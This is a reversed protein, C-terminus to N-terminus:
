PPAVRRLEDRGVWDLPCVVIQPLAILPEIRDDDSRKDVEYGCLDFTRQCHACKAGEQNSLLGNPPHEWSAVARYKEGARGRADLSKRLRRWERHALERKASESLAHRALEMEWTWTSRLQRLVHLYNEAIADPDLMSEPKDPPVARGPNRIAGDIV